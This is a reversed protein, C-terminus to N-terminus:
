TVILSRVVSQTTCTCSTTVFLLELFLTAAPLTTSYGLNSKTSRPLLTVVGNSVVRTPVLCCSFLTWSLGWCLLGRVVLQPTPPSLANINLGWTDEREGAALAAAWKDVAFM